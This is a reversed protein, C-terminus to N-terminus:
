FGKAELKVLARRADERVRKHKDQEAVDELIRRAESGGITLISNVASVRINFDSNTKVVQELFKMSNPDGISGIAGLMTQKVYMTNEAEFAEEIDVASPLDQTYKLAQAARNRVKLSKDEQMLQTFVPVVEWRRSHKGLAEVFRWRDMLKEDNEILDSLLHYSLDNDVAGLAEVTYKIEHVKREELPAENLMNYHDTLGLAAGDGGMAGLGKILFRRNVFDSELALLDLLIPAMEPPLTALYEKLEERARILQRAQKADMNVLEFDMDRFLELIRRRVEEEGASTYGMKELKPSDSTGDFSPGVTGTADTPEGSSSKGPEQVMVPNRPTTRAKEFQYIVLGIFLLSLLTMLLPLAVNGAMTSRLTTSRLSWGEPQTYLM